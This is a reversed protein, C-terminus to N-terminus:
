DPIDVRVPTADKGRYETIASLAKLLLKNGEVVVFCMMVKKTNSDMLPRYDIPKIINKQCLFKVLKDSLHKGMYYSIVDKEM